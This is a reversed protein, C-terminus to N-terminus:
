IPGKIQSRRHARRSSRRSRKTGRMDWAALVPSLELFPAHPVAYGAVVQDAQESAAGSGKENKDQRRLGRIPTASTPVRAPRM